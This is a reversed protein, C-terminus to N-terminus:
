PLECFKRTRDFEPEQWSYAFHSVSTINPAARQVASMQTELSPRNRLAQGWAGALVPRVHNVNGNQRLVEQIEQVICSTNGCTGYAMPHWTMNNPFRNWHQLRSDYGQNGVPRNASPFFVAGTPIGQQQAPRAVLQLFDIVGQVAHALSLRWLEHQLGPRRESPPALIGSVPPTRSQWLPELENPFLTDIQAVDGDTLYGQNIFRRILERGKNNLARQLLAQQAASGYIWLDTVSSVVSGTGVGRPYRIYDFLVGDPRRQLILQLMRLYDSQALSSYPDVFVEEPNSSGGNAAFTLTNYGRGNRALTQQRDHRIGYSYGFNLAFLWADVKLGRRHGAAIAEALLDRNEYGRAQVVSPWVTRNDRVPLLVQGNYFAEVYVENYGLNVIRDMLADLMGPRLDCPYLRVWTAQSRPWQNRRCAQLENAHRKVLEEYQTAATQDGALAAQRLTEKRDIDAQALQCYRNLTAQAPNLSPPLMLTVTSLGIVALARCWHKLGYTNSRHISASHISASYHRLSHALGM